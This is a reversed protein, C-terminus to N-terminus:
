LRMRHLVKRLAPLEINVISPERVVEFDWRLNDRRGVSCDTVYLVVVLCTRVASESKLDAVIMCMSLTCPAEIARVDMRQLQWLGAADVYVATVAVWGERSAHGQENVNWAAISRWLQNWRLVDETGGSGPLKEVIDDRAIAVADVTRLVACVELEFFHAVSTCLAREDM